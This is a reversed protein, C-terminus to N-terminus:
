KEKGVGNSELKKMAHSVEDTNAYEKAKQDKM